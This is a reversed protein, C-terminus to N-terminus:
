KSKSPVIRVSDSGTVSGGDRLKGTLTAETTSINLNLEQTRFFFVLDPVGDSNVDEYVFREPSAGAFKVTNVDVDVVNFGSSSLITVPVIGKSALNISNPFDIDVIVTGQSWVGSCCEAVVSTPSTTAFTEIFPTAGSVGLTPHSAANTFCLGTRSVCFNSNGISLAPGLVLGVPAPFEPDFRHTAPGYTFDSGWAFAWDSFDFVSIFGPVRLAADFTVHGTVFGGSPSRLSSSYEYRVQAAWGSQSGAALLVATTLM